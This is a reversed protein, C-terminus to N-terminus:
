THAWGSHGAHAWVRDCQELLRGRSCYEIHVEYAPQSVAMRVAGSTSVVGGPAPDRLAALQASGAQQQATTSAALTRRRRQRPAASPAPLPQAHLALTAADASRFQPRVAPHRPQQLKGGLM